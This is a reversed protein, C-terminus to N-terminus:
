PSTTFGTIKWEINDTQRLIVYFSTSTEGVLASDKSPEMDVTVFVYAELDNNDKYKYTIDQYSTLKASIMGYVDNEHFFENSCNMTCFKKMSQYDPTAFSTFFDLIVAGIEASDDHSYILSKEVGDIYIKSIKGDEGFMFRAISGDEMNWSYYKGDTYSQYSGLEIQLDDLTYNRSVNTLYERTVPMFTESVIAVDGDIQPEATTSTIEGAIQCSTMLVTSAVLAAAAAYAPVNSNHKQEIKM